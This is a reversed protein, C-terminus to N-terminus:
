PKGAKRETQRALIFKNSEEGAAKFEAVIEKLHDHMEGLETMSLEGQNLGVMLTLVGKLDNGFAGEVLCAILGKAMLRWMSEM